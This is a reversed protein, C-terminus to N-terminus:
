TRQVVFREQFEDLITGLSLDTELDASADDAPLQQESNQPIGEEGWLQPIYRGRGMDTTYRGRGTTYKGRGM